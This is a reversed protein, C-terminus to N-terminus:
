DKLKELIKTTSVQFIIPVIHLQIGLEEFVEREKPHLNNYSYDGGKVVISPKVTRLFSSADSESFVFVADIPKLALLMRTRYYENNIPRTPGKLGTISKDSKLGIVLHSGLVKAKEFVDIHGLHLIDFCGNIAILKTPNNQKKWQDFDELSTKM